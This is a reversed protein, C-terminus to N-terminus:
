PLELAPLGEVWGQHLATKLLLGELGAMKAWDDVLPMHPARLADPVCVMAVNRCVMFVQYVITEQAAYSFLAQLKLEPPAPINDHFGFGLAVGQILDCFPHRPEQWIAAVREHHEALGRLMLGLLPHYVDPNDYVGRMLAEDRLYGLLEDKHHCEEPLAEGKLSRLLRDPTGCKLCM